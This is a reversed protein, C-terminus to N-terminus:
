WVGFFNTAKVSRMEMKSIQLKEKLFVKDQIMTKSFLCKIAISQYKENISILLGTRFERVKSLTSIGIKIYERPPATNQVVCDINQDSIFIYGHYINGCDYFNNVDRVDRFLIAQNTKANYELVSAYLSRESHDYWYLWGREHHNHVRTNCANEAAHSLLTCLDVHLVSCLDALVDLAIAIEGNEYKSLVAASKNVKKALKTLTLGEVRRRARLIRGVNMYFSHCNM